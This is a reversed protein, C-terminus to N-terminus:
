GFSFGPRQAGSNKCQQDIFMDNDSMWSPSSSSSQQLSFLLPSAFAPIPLTLPSFKNSQPPPPLSKRLVHVPHTDDHRGETRYRFCQECFDTESCVTCHLRWGVIPAMGCLACRTNAHETM